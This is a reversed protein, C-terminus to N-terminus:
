KMEHAVTLLIAFVGAFISFYLIATGVGTKDKLHFQNATINQVDRESSEFIDSVWFDASYKKSRTFSSDTSLVLVSRFLMPSIEENYVHLIEDSSGYPLPVNISRTNDSPFLPFFKKRITRFTEQISQKAGIQSVPSATQDIEKILAIETNPRHITDIWYFSVLSDTAIWSKSWDIYLPQALKNSISVSVPCNRGIFSYTIKLTDNELIYEKHRSQPLKSSVSVYQYKSCGFGGFVILLFFLKSISNNIM